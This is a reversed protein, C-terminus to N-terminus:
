AEEVGLGEGGPDGGLDFSKRGRLSIDVVGGAPLLVAAVGLEGDGGRPHRDVVRAQQRHLVEVPRPEPDVEARALPLLVEGPEDVQDVLRGLSPLTSVDANM